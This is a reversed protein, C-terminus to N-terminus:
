TSAGEAKPMPDGMLACVRSDMDGTRLGDATEDMFAHVTIYSNDVSLSVTGPTLTISNAYVTQGLADSQSAKVRLVQPHVTDPALLIARAVGLNSIVIEKILWPFYKLGPLTLHVPHGEHDCVDMRRAILVCLIISGAGLALILPIWYGSLLLWFGTLALALAIAQSM